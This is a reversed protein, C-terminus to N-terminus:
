ASRVPTQTAPSSFLDRLATVAAAPNSNVEAQVSSALQSGPNLGFNALLPSAMPDGASLAYVAKRILTLASGPGFEAEATQAAAALDAAPLAIIDTGHAGDGLALFRMGSASGPAISITDHLVGKPGALALATGGDVVSVSDGRRFAQGTLDVVSGVGFGEVPTGFIGNKLAAQDLQLVELQGDPVFQIPGTGAGVSSAIEVTGLEVRTGGTFSNDGALVLKGSGDQVVSGTGFTYSDPLSGNIGSDIGFNPPAYVTTTVISGSDTTTGSGTYLLTGDNLVTGSAGVSTDVAQAGSFIVETGNDTGNTSSAGTQLVELADNTVGTATGGAEVVLGTPLYSPALGSGGNQYLPFPLDAFLSTLSFSSDAVTADALNGTVIALSQGGLVLKTMVGGDEVTATGTASIASASAGDEVELLAGSNTSNLEYGPTFGGSLSAQTLTSGAGVTTSSGQGLLASTLSGGQDLTVSSTNEIFSLGVVALYGQVNLSAVAGSITLNAGYGVVLDTATGTVYNSVDLGYMEANDLQGGAAVNIGAGSPPPEYQLETALPTLTQTVGEVIGGARVLLGYDNFGLATPGFTIGSVAGSVDVQGGPGSVSIDSASGTPGVLLLGGQQGTQGVEVNSLVGEDELTGYILYDSAVQGSDIMTTTGVPVVTANSDPM